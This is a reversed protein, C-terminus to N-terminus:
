PKLKDIIKDIKPRNREESSKLIVKTSEIEGDTLDKFNILSAIPFCDSHDSMIRDHDFIDEIFGNNQFVYGYSRLYNQRKESINSSSSWKIEAIGKPSILFNTTMTQRDRERVGEGDHVPVISGNDTRFLGPNRTIIIPMGDELNKSDFAHPYAEQLATMAILNDKETETNLGKIFEAEKSKNLKEFYDMPKVPKIDKIEFENNVNGIEAM